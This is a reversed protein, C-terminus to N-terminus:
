KGAVKDDVVKEAAAVVQPEVSAIAQKIAPLNIGVAALVKAVKQAAPWKVLWGEVMSAIAGLVMLVEAPHSGAYHLVFALISWATM